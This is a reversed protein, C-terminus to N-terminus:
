KAIQHWDNVVLVNFVTICGESYSNFNNLYYLYEINENSAQEEVDVTGEWLAMGIYVFIHMTTLILLIPGALFPLVYLSRQLVERFWISFRMSQIMGIARGILLYEMGSENGSIYWIMGFFSVIGGICGMGDLVANLRTIPNIRNKSYQWPNYRISVEFLALLTILSGIIFESMDDKHNSHLKSSFIMVYVFNLISVSVSLIEVAIGLASHTRTARISSSLVQQMRKRFEDFNLNHKSDCKGHEKQTQARQQVLEPGNEFNSPVIIDMLVNLKQQSYHPRLLRLTECILRVDVSANNDSPFENSNNNTNKKASTLALFALKLSNDKDSASRRHVETASQIFVQFVVSLVLSHLYFISVVIFIVFFVANWPSENYAPM